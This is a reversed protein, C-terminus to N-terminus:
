SFGGPDPSTGEIFHQRLRAYVQAVIPLGLDDDRSPDEFFRSTDGRRQRDYTLAKHLMQIRDAAKVVRAELCSRSEYDRHAGIWSDPADSLVLRAARSEADAVPGSGVHHKVPWPLDTLIAEGLDHVLAIRMVLALDIPQDLHEAIWLATLAVGYSHAAISEPNQVGCVIWGTRPLAELRDARSLLRLLADPDTM